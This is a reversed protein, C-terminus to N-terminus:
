HPFYNQLQHFVVRIMNQLFVLQAMLNKKRSDVLYTSVHCDEYLHM